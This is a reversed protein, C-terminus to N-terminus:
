VHFFKLAAEAHRSAEKRSLAQRSVQEALSTMQLWLLLAMTPSSLDALAAVAPNASLPSGELKSLLRMEAPHDLGYRLVALAGRQLKEAPTYGKLSYYRIRDSIRKLTTAALAAFLQDKGRFHRYAATHSVGTKSALQRFSLQEIGQEEILVFSADLLASKLNGHHYPKAAPM